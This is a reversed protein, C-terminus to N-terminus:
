IRRWIGAGTKQALARSRVDSVAKPVNSTTCQCSFRAGSDPTVNIPRHRFCTDHAKPSIVCSVEM